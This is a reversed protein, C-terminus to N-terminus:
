LLGGTYKRINLAAAILLLNLLLPMFYGKLSTQFDEELVKLEGDYGRSELATYLADAHRYSRIFLTSGLIGLSKLGIKFNRYGLRSDQATIMTEAMELFVFICRYILGMLEIFLKPCGLRRLTSMIYIMPTSLALYYLCSVAGMARFFLGTAAAAGAKTIGVHKGGIPFGLIFASQEGSIGLAIALVGIILFAAPILMLKVLVTFPTRGIRLTVWSMIFVVILSIPISSAWLCVGMTVLSFFLKEMPAKDKLASAYAFKDINFM